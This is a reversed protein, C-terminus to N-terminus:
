PREGLTVSLEVREDRRLVTVTVTDGPRTHNILYSMLDTFVRVELGDVGVILDGDGALTQSNVGSDGRLGGRAAPGGPEVFLVYTGDTQPLRLAEQQALTMEQSSYRLGLYPYVFRGDRILYPVIQRVTNSAISFGVGSSVGTETQIARNVGVVEGALNLLPGGSNGPNIAADTQITDPASFTSGEETVRNSSLARGLSSIIGVTMTGEYGFPNGIAAVRQGVRLLDSDGLPLPRLAGEPARVRIVALDSDPDAGVVEGRLKLGSAFDVEIAVAGEVVHQNTVIHGETDFVFGSGQSADFGGLDVLISVVSGSVQEYLAILQEEESSSIVGAATPWPTLTPVPSALVATDQAAAPRTTPTAQAGQGASPTTAPTASQGPGAGLGVSCALTAAALAAVAAGIVWQKGMMAGGRKREALWDAGVGGRVEVGVHERAGTRRGM